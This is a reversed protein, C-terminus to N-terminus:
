RKNSSLKNSWQYTLSYRDEMLVSLELDLNYIKELLMLEKQAEAIRGNYGLAQAYRKIAAPNPYKHAINKMWELQVESMKVFPNTRLLETNQRLQNLLYVNPAQKKSHLDGIRSLEFRLLRVDKEIMLYEKLLVFFLFLFGAMFGINLLKPLKFDLVGKDNEKIVDVLVLGIIFGIPLLFFLFNYPFEVMSYIAFALVMSVSIINQSDNAKIVLLWLVRISFLLIVMGLPIGNWILIDLIVNHSNAAWENHSVIPTATIEAFSVQGWGYGLWPQMRVSQLLMNWMQIRPHSGTAREIGSDVHYDNDLIGNTIEPILWIFFVFIIFCVFPILFHTRFNEKVLFIRTCLFVMLVTVNLWGMRSQTMAIGYLFILVLIFAVITQLRKKEYLIFVSLLTVIQFFAFANPQSFNASPRNHSPLGSIYIDHSLNLWQVLAIYFSILGGIVFLWCFFGLSKQKLEQNKYALSFAICIIVFFLILYGSNILVDGFFMYPFIWVQILPIIAMCPVFLIIKPIHINFYNKLYFAVLLILGFFSAFNAYAFGWPFYNHPSLWSFLVSISLLFISVNNFTLSSKNSLFLISEKKNSQNNKLVCHTRDFFLSM